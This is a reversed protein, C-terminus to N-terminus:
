DFQAWYTQQYARMAARCLDCRCGRGTYSTHKGHVIPRARMREAQERGSKARHCPRCLVQCKALEAVRDAEEWRWIRSTSRKLRPDKTTPDVHDLELREATGCQACSKDAFFEERLRRERDHALEM